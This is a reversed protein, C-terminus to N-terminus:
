SLTESHFYIERTKSLSLSLTHTHTNNRDTQRGTQRQKISDKLKKLKKSLDPLRLWLGVIISISLSSNSWAKLYHPETINIWVVGGLPTKGSTV